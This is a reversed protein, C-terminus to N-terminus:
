EILQQRILDLLKPVFQQQVREFYSQLIAFPIPLEAQSYPNFMLHNQQLQMLERQLLLVLQLVQQLVLLQAQPIVLIMLIVFLELHELAALM